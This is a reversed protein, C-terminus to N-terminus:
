RPRRTAPVYQSTCGHHFVENYHTKDDNDINYDPDGKFLIKSGNAALFDKPGSVM